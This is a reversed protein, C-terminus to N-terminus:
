TEVADFVPRFHGEPSDGGMFGEPGEPTSNAGSKLLHNPTDLFGSTGFAGPMPSSTLALAHGLAGDKLCYTCCPATFKPIEWAAVSNVRFSTLDM